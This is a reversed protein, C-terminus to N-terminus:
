PQQPSHGDTRRHLAHTLVENRFAEFDSLDDAFTLVQDDDVQQYGHVLMNRFGIMRRYVPGRAKATVGGRELRAFADYADRPAHRFDKASVHYAVDIMAQISTQLSYKLGRLLATRVTATPGPSSAGAKALARYAAAQDRVAALEQEIFDFKAEITRSDM